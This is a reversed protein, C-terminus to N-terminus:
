AERSSKQMKLYDMLKIQSGRALGREDINFAENLVLARPNLATLNGNLMKYVGDTLAENELAFLLINGPKYIIEIRKEDYNFRDRGNNMSIGQGRFDIEHEFRGFYIIKAANRAPEFFVGANELNKGEIAVQKLNPLKFGIGDHIDIKQRYDEFKSEFTRPLGYGYRSFRVLKWDKTVLLLEESIEEDLAKKPKGLHNSHVYGSIFNVVSDGFEPRDQNLGILYVRGEINIVFVGGVGLNAFLHGRGKLNGAIESAGVKVRGATMYDFNLDKGIPTLDFYSEKGKRQSIKERALVRRTRFRGPSDFSLVDDELIM